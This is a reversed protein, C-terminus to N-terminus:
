SLYRSLNTVISGPHVAYTRVGHQRGRRDLEVAFLAAATKSQGYAEWKDYPREKYDLDDWHIDSLRHGRSTVVITRAEGAAKLAPWLKATLRYVGLFNTSFQLERGNADHQLPVAMIGASH